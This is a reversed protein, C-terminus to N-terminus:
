GSRIGSFFPVHPPIPAPGPSGGIMREIRMIREVEKVSETFLFVEREWVAGTFLSPRSAQKATGGENARRRAFFLRELYM